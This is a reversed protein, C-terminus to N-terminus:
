MIESTKALLICYVEAAGATKLVRACESLTSGTTCVDDVLLIRKECLDAGSLSRYAGFVNMKRQRKELSSQRKVFLRKTMTEGCPKKLFEALRRGLLETQNYGRKFRRGLGIPVWTVYDFEWTYERTLRKAMLDSFLLYYSKKGGFKYRVIASRVKGAYKLAAAAGDTFEPKKFDQAQFGTLIENECSKCMPLTIDKESLIERCFVCRKPFILDLM